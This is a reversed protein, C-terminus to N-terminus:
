GRPGLLGSFMSGPREEEYKAAKGWRGTWIKKGMKFLDRAVKKMEGKESRGQNPAVPENDGTQRDAAETQHDRASQNLGWKTPL